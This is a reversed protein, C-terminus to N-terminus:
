RGLIVALGARLERLRTVPDDTQRQRELERELDRQLEEPSFGAVILALWAVMAIVSLTVGLIALVRAASAQGTSGSKRARAAAVWAGIAMPLSLAFSLGLSLLLLGLSCVALVIGTVALGSSPGSPKPQVFRPTDDAPEPPPAPRAGPAQPPLWEPAM